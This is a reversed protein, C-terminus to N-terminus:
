KLCDARWLCNTQDCGGSKVTGFCEFNGEARQIARILTDKKMNGPTLGKTKAIERIQKVNM